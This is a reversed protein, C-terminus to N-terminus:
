ETPSPATGLPLDMFYGPFLHPPPYPGVPTPAPTRPTWGAGQAGQDTWLLIDGDALTQASHQRAPHRYWAQKM